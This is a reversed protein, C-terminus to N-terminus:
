NHHFTTSWCATKMASLVTRSKGLFVRTEMPERLPDISPNTVQSANILLRDWYVPLPKPSGMSSLLVGGTEAQRYIENIADNSWNANGRYTHRSKVIRLAHTPCIAACRQCNVCKANDATMRKQRDDFGHAGNACERECLRCRTCAADDRLLEFEPAIYGPIM